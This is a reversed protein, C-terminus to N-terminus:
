GEIDDGVAAEQWRAPLAQLLRFPRGARIDVSHLEVEDRTTIAERYGRRDSSLRATPLAFRTSNPRHDIQRGRDDRPRPPSGPPNAPRAGPWGPRTTMGSFTRRKSYGYQRVKWEGEGYVKLGTSDLVLHLPGSTKRPLTIQVTAARRCLTSYDPVPLDLDMLECLSRTFWETARLTLHYVARLTLLCEIALDSYEFQAGQRTPGQYRWAELTEQEVWLTLSGRRVLADHYQKWNRVRYVFQKTTSRAPM